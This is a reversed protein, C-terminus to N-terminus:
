SVPVRAPRAAGGPLGLQELFSELALTAMGLAVPSGHVSSLAVEVAAASGAIAESILRERTPALLWEGLETAAWSSLVIRRPNIINVLNALAAGLYRAFEGILWRAEPEDDLMGQRIAHVFKLQTEGALYAHGPYREGFLAMLGPVGIYAEVCGLRGCRCQRGDMVLTSHGWEGANNTVGRILQGDVAIGAGVGTGLNITILDGTARGHGFWLEAVTTAKLPNDVHIPLHVLEQLMAQVPVDSWGWNPAFVSVGTDPEVQGPLSVGVGLIPGAPHDDLAEQVCRAIEGIVYTPDSKRETMERDYRALHTLALDFVDVRVYTEAVDVGLLLGRAPDFKLRARPRGGGSDERSAEVLVGAHILETVINSVTAFSLGTLAALDQRSPSVASYIGRLVAFRNTNRIDKSTRRIGGTRDM